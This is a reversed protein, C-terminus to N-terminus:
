ANLSEHVCMAPSRLWPRYFTDDNRTRKVTALEIDRSPLHYRRRRHLRERRILNLHAVSSLNLQRGGLLSRIEPCGDAM